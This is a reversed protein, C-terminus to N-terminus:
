GSTLSYSTELMVVSVGSLIIVMINQPYHYHHQQQNVFRDVHIESLFLIILLPNMRKM